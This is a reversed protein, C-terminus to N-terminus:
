TTWVPLQSTEPKEILTVGLRPLALFIPRLILLWALIIIPTIANSFIIGTCQQWNEMCGAQFFLECNSDIQIARNLAQVADDALGL